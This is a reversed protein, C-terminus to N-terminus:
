EIRVIRASFTRAPAEITVVDGVRHGLLARGVPSENSIRGASPKAEVAGVITYTEEEGDIEITVTSGIRVVSRDTGDEEIVEVRKLLEEIERIRGEIFGQDHKAADYAANERIDGHERAEQIIRAIEPRRRKVLDEYERQLAELGERTIPIKERAM